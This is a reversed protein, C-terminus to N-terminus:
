LFVTEFSLSAKPVPMSLTFKTGQTPISEIDIQGGVSKVSDKVMSMGVGRGSIDTVKEATSFGAEFIMGYLIDKELRAAQAETHTGNKVLKKRISDENIGRGDDEIIICIVENKQYCTITVKGKREKGMKERDLPSELGHDLSNRILHVLSNNLIAAINTDIALDSGVTVVEVEKELAKSTDRVLRYIPKLINHMPVKRLNTIQTQVSANIKQMEDLLESLMSVDRNRPFQAEIAKACKNIINRIVTMEGSAEMFRDLVKVPVKLESPAEKEPARPAAQSTSSPKPTQGVLQTGAGFFEIFIAELDYTRHQRLKFEGLLVKIFDFSKLITSIVEPTM